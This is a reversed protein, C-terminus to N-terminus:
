SNKSSSKAIKELKLVVQKLKSVESPDMEKYHEQGIDMCLYTNEGTGLIVDKGIINLWNMQDIQDKAWQRFFQDDTFIPLFHKNGESYFLPIPEGDVAGEKRVPLVFINSLFLRHATNVAQENEPNKYAEEIAQILESM